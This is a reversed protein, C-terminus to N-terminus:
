RKIAFESSFFKLIKAGLNFVRVQNPYDWYFRKPMNFFDHLQKKSIELKRAVFEFEKKVMEQDLAPSKLIELAKDRSM